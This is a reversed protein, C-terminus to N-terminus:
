SDRVVRRLEADLSPKLNALTLRLELERFQVFMHRIWGFLETTQDVDGTMYGSISFSPRAIVGRVVPSLRPIEMPPEGDPTPPAKVAGHGFGPLVANVVPILPLQRLRERLVRYGQNSRPDADVLYLAVPAVGCRHAEGVFDIEQAVAVFRDFPGAGLDIVKPIGDANIIQDFLAMEGRVDNLSAIATDGPLQDCLAFNDPNADFAAIPRDDAKFYEVLLRALLTRGVRARPSCVIFVPTPSAM